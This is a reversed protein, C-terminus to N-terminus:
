PSSSGSDEGAHMYTLDRGTVSQNSKEADQVEEQLKAVQECRDRHKEWLGPYYRSRRDLRIPRSCGRCVVEHPTVKVAWEDTELLRRREAESRATKKAFPPDTEDLTQMGGSSPSSTSSTHRKRRRFVPAPRSTEITSESSSPTSSGERSWSLDVEEDLVDGEAIGLVQPRRRWCIDTREPRFGACHLSHERVLRQINGLPNPGDYQLVAGCGKRGCRSRFAWPPNETKDM